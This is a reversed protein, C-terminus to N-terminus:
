GPNRENREWFIVDSPAPGLLGSGRPRITTAPAMDKMIISPKIKVVRSSTDNVPTTPIMEGIANPARVTTLRSKISLTSIPRSIGPMFVGCALLGSKLANRKPKKKPIITRGQLGPSIAAKKAFVTAVVVNLKRAWKACKMTKPSPIPNGRSKKEASEAAFLRDM